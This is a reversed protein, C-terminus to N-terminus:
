PIFRFMRGDGHSLMVSYIDDSNFKKYKKWQRLNRDFEEIGKIHPKLAILATAQDKYNRNVVMFTTVKNSKGFLGLVFDDKRLFQVPSSVPVPSAGSPLHGSHYTGLHELDMLVSSQAFLEKNLISVADALPTKVGDQYLGGYAKPGWYLFYSIGRGGYALTTYVLWRLEGANVLRWSKEYSSAQIINMFPLKNDRAVKSILELNLFYQDGDNNKFFHYHDYSILSPRVEAIYRRLYEEYAKQPPGSTGLQKNPAYVPLLNIYAFHNPDRERLYAVLQGLSNFHLAGPEDAIFYAELAPHNKVRNILADLKARQKASLLTRPTILDDQLMAKLGQDHAVDLGHEDTWTLNFGEKAVRSLIEKDAPPPCWFTIMFNKQKWADAEAYSFQYIFFLCCILLIKFLKM